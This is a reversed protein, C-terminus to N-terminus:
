TRTTRSIASPMGSVILRCRRAAASSSFSASIWAWPIAAAIPVLFMSSGSRSFSITSSATSCTPPSRTITTSGSPTSSASESPGASRSVFKAVGPRGSIPAASPPTGVESM